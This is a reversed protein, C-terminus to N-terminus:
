VQRQQRSGTLEHALLVSVRVAVTAQDAESAMQRL